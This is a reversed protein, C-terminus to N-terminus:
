RRLKECCRDVLEVHRFDELKSSTPCQASSANGILANTQDYKRYQTFSAEIIVTQSVKDLLTINLDAQHATSIRAWWHTDALDRRTSAAPADLQDSLSRM